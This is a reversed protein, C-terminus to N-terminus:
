GGSPILAEPETRIDNLVQEPLASHARDVEGLVGGEAPLDRDLNETSLFSWLRFDADLPEQSFSAGHRSEVVRVDDTDVVNCLLTADVIERHFVHFPLREVLDNGPTTRNRRRPRNRVDRLGRSAKLM